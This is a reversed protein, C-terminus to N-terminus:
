PSGRNSELSALFEEADAYFVSKPRNAAIGLGAEADLMACTVSEREADHAQQRRAMTGRRVAMLTGLKVAM